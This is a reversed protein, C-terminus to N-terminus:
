SQEPEHQVREWRDACIAVGFVHPALPGLPVHQLLFRAAAAWPRHVCWGCSQGEQCGYKM